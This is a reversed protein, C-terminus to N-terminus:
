PPASVRRAWAQCAELAARNLEFAEKAPVVGDRALDSLALGAPEDHGGDAAASDPDAQMDANWVSVFGRPVTCRADAERTVYVPVEKTVVRARERVTTTINMTIADIDSAAKALEVVRGLAAAEEQARLAEFLREAHAAGRLWCTLGFAAVLAAIIAIRALPSTVLNM